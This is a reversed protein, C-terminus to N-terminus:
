VVVLRSCPPSSVLRPFQTCLVHNAPDVGQCALWGYLEAVLASEAFRRTARSGDPMRVALTVVCPGDEPEPGPPELQSLAPALNTRTRSAATCGFVYDLVSGVHRARRM